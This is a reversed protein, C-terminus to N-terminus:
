ATLRKTSSLTNRQRRLEGRVPSYSFWASMRGLTYGILLLLAMLLKTNVCDEIHPAFSIGEEMPQAIYIGWALIALVPLAILYYIFKM